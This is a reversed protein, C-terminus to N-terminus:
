SPSLTQLTLSTRLAMSGTSFPWGAQTSARTPAWMQLGAARYLPPVTLQSDLVELIFDDEVFFTCM